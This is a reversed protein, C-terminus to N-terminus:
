LTSDTDNKNSCNESIFDYLSFFLAAIKRSNITLENRNIVIEM